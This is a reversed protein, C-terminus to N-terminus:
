IDWAPVRGEHRKALSELVQLTEELRARAARGQATTPPPLGGLLNVRIHEAISAPTEASELLWSRAQAEAARAELEAATPRPGLPQEPLELQRITGGQAEFQVISYHPKGSLLHQAAPGPVTSGVPGVDYGLARTYLAANKESLQVFGKNVLEQALGM